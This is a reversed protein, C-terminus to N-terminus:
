VGKGICARLKKALEAMKLDENAFKDLKEKLPGL